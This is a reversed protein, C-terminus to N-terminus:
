VSWETGDRTDKITIGLANLSDRIRDSTAWDKAEKAKKREELVMEVLGRITAAARDGGEEEERLGLVNDVIGDFVALLIACDEM